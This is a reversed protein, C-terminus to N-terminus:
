VPGEPTENPQFLARLNILRTATALRRVESMSHLSDRVAQRERDPLGEIYADIGDIITTCDKIRAEYHDLLHQRANVARARELQVRLAHRKADMGERELPDVLFFPCSECAHNVMCGHGHQAVNQPESCHGLTVAVRTFGDRERDVSVAEGLMNLRRPPVANLAQKRRRTSVEYYAMTTEFSKHGMLSQLVDPPTTPRGEADTADAFRQAFAHRFSYPDLSDLDFHVLNGELGEVPGVFPAREKVTAIFMDLIRNLYSHNWHTDVTSNLGTKPFLWQSAVGRERKIAQWERIADHTEQHIPLRKGKTYPPKGRVWELYPAGEDDYSICDEALKITETTRRGCREHVFLIARSMATLYPDYEGTYQNTRVLMHLNSMLHEIIPQPVFRFPEDGGDSPTTEGNPRHRTPDVTFRAPITGWTDEFQERSRAFALLEKLFKQHRQQAKESAWRGRIAGVIADMDQAGLASVPTGRLDLVSAAVIWTAAMKKVQEYGRPSETAWAKFAALIWDQQVTRLDVKNDHGRTHVSPKLTLDRLYIIKPDRDDEGSWERYADDILRQWERFLAGRTSTTTVGLGAMGVVTETGARRHALYASRLLLPNLHRGTRERQQVAYLLEWRLPEPLLGFPTASLAAYTTKQDDYFPEVQTEVWRQVTRVGGRGVGHAWKRYTSEHGRCLGEYSVEKGCGLRCEALRDLPVPAREAVWAQVGGRGGARRWRDLAVNHATCLGNTAHTRACGQVDCGTRYTARVRPGVQRLWEEVPLGSESTRFQTRCAPCLNGRTLHVGCGERPCIGITNDPNHVDPVFLLREFDFEGPRWDMSIRAKLFDAWPVEQKSTPQELLRGALSLTM